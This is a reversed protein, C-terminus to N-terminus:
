GTTKFECPLVKESGHFGISGDNDLKLELVYAKFICLKLIYTIRSMKVPIKSKVAANTASWQDTM